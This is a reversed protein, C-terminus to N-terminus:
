GFTSSAQMKEAIGLLTAARVAEVALEELHRKRGSNGRYYIGVSRREEWGVIELLHVDEAQRFEARAYLEPFLSCGMGVSVMQRIADLSTGEYDDVVLAGSVRALHRVNELLRNGSGLALLREGCLDEVDVARKTSLRHDSPVGLYLREAGIGVVSLEPAACTPGIGCDLVGEAVATEIASPRDELIHIKLEPYARHLPPLFVPLFYPGFSPPTGIKILGGLGRADQAVEDLLDNMAALTLRAGRVFRDGTPTTLVASPTREFLQIGLGEELNSVQVSLTPQSVHCRRAARGFHGCEAVAVVYELQRLTPRYPVVDYICGLLAM